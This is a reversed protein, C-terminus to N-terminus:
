AELEKLNKKMMALLATAQTPVADLNQKLDINSEIENALTWLESLEFLTFIPKATHITIRITLLDNTEIGARLDKEFEAVSSKYMDIYVRMRSENGGTLEKLKTLM